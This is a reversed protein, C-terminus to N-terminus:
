LFVHQSVYRDDGAEACFARHQQVQDCTDVRRHRHQEEIGALMEDLREGVLVNEDAAEAKGIHAHDFRIGPVAHIIIPAMAM